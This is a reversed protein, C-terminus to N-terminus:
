ANGNSDADMIEAQKRISEKHVLQLLSKIYEKSLGIQLGYQVRSDVINEWRSEQYPKVNCQKKFEGIEKVINMRQALLELLQQDISDIKSRFQKLKDCFPTDSTTSSKISLANLMDNFASPTLQQQADSLAVKPNNHVEVMLGDAMLDIAKQAINPVISAKGAIHSPDCIIPLNPMRSRLDITIEWKPLNRLTTKEFPFFGRHIAALRTIGSRYLREIAGIWLELDPNVPNKVMVYASTGRLANALQEVSFPNSVTRAGVWLIDIGYKLAQEVHQPTAVEIALALGTQNKAEQLWELAEIGAGEFAGPRSRPKWVGARLAHVKGTAALQTATALVQERSEASCPGAIIYPSQGAYGPWSSLPEINLKDM